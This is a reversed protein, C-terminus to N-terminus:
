GGRATKVTAIHATFRADAVRILKAYVRSEKRGGKVAAALLIAQRIPDFAFAVRWEAKNATVRLEKMNGYASGKLTDVWPRGLQPGEITLANLGKAMALQVNRDLADFEPAFADHFIVAFAM